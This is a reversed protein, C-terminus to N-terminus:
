AGRGALGERLAVSIEEMAHKPGSGLATANVFGHIMGAYRRLTVAVGAAELKRAYAEGEDRLPDFGATVVHAPPLGELDDALLPSAMPDRGASEDPLYHGRYWDMHKETLFFGDGFLRYSEHKTSLDTVPYLLLQFAPKPGGERAARRAVVAALNGGASDGAVAVRAPDSSLDAANAVAFRFAAFADDAAAPFRHEPALRYDVSLLNVGAYVALFRCAGDHTDLDGVVWGGGHFYVVLPRPDSGGYPRYLRAPIEGAPGPIRRPEVHAVPLPAGALARSTGRIAERAEPPALKELPVGGTLGLLRLMLQVEADLEQGDIRVPRSGALVRVAQAPLGLLGRAVVGQVRESFSAESSM